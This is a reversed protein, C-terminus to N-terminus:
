VAKKRHKAYGDGKKKKNNVDVLFLKEATAHINQFQQKTYAERMKACRKRHKTQINKRHKEAILHFLCKVPICLTYLVTEIGFTIWQMAIRLWKSASIHWLCFGAAMFLPTAARFVGNNLWYLLLILTIACIICFLVDNLFTVAPLSKSKRASGKKVRPARIQQIAPVTYRTQSPMLWIRTCYLVDYFLSLMLGTLFSTCSLQFLASQSFSM